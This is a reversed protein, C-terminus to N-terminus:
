RRTKGKGIIQFNCRDGFFFYARMPTKMVPRRYAFSRKINSPLTNIICLAQRALQAETARRDNYPWLASKVKQDGLITMVEYLEM